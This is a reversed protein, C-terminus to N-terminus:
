RGLFEMPCCARSNIRLEYRTRQMRASGRRRQLARLSGFLFKAVTDPGAHSPPASDFVASRVGFSQVCSGGSPRGNLCLQNENKASPTSGAEVIGLESALVSNNAGALCGFSSAVCESQVKFGSNLVRERSESAASENLLREGCPSHLRARCM